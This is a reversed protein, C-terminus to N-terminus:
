IARGLCLFTQVYHRFKGSVTPQSSAQSAAAPADAAAAAPNVSSGQVFGGLLVKLDLAERDVGVSQGM